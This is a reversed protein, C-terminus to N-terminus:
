AIVPFGLSLLVLYHKMTKWFHYCRLEIKIQNLAINVLLIWLVVGIM